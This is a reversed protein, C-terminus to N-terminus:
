LLDGYNQLAAGAIRSLKAVRLARELRKQRGPNLYPMLARLLAEQRPESGPLPFPLGQAASAETNEEGPPNDADPSFGLSAAMARIQELKEPDGLIEQITNQIEDM